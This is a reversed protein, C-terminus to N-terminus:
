RNVCRKQEKEEKTDIEYDVRHLMNLLKQIMSARGEFELRGFNQRLKRVEHHYRRLTSDISHYIKAM